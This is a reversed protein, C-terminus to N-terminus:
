RLLTLDEIGIPRQVTFGEGYIAGIPRGFDRARAELFSFFDEGSIPTEPEKSEPDYFQSSFAKISAVKTEWTDTVDVVVDPKQYYDQIYHLVLRPRHAAQPVGDQFTEIKKLGALFCAEAALKAGRGHDVHRDKVANALVIEPQYKRIATILTLKNAKSLEFFGDPLTLNERATLGLIQSSKAAEKDRLDASGRTGLEGRTFDVIAAKKGQKILKVLTGSCSLEVDDPHAALALVDVKTEM